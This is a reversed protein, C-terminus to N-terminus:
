LPICNQPHLSKDVGEETWIFTKCFDLVVQFYIKLSKALLLCRGLFVTIMGTTYKEREWSQQFQSLM